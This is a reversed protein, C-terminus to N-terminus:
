TTPLMAFRPEITFANEWVTHKGIRACFENRILKVATEATTADMPTILAQLQGPLIAFEHPLYKKQERFHLLVELLTKPDPIGWSFRGVDSRWAPSTFRKDLHCKAPITCGM